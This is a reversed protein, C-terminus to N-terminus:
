RIWEGKTGNLVWMAPVAMAQRTDTATRDWELLLVHQTLVSAPSSPGPM